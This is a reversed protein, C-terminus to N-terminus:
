YPCEHPNEKRPQTAPQLHPLPPSGCRHEALTPIHPDSGAPKGAIMHKDRHDLEKIHPRYEYTNRGTLLAALEGGVTLPLPDVIATGAATDADLGYLVLHGCQHHRLSAKRTCGDTSWAGTNILHQKLWTPIPQKTTM